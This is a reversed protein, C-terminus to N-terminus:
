AEDDNPCERAKHVANVLQRKHAPKQLKHAQKDRPPEGVTVEGKCWVPIRGPAHGNM